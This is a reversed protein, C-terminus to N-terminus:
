KKQAADPPPKVHQQQHSAWSLYTNWVLSVVNAFLVQFKLPVLAFNLVQAPVWITWNMQLAPWWDKSLAGSIQEPRAELVLVSSMFVGIFCPAFVAQDLVLRTALGQLGGAAAFKGTPNPFLKAIIGGLSNYWVHLVPAILAGGLFTMIGLRKANFQTDTELTLQCVADGVGVMAASTLGKTLLPKSELAEGYM